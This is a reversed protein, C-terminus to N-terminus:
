PCRRVASPPAPAPARRAGALPRQESAAVDLAAQGRQLRGDIPFLVPPPQGAEDAPEDGGRRQQDIQADVAIRIADKTEGLFASAAQIGHEGGHLVVRGARVAAERDVPRRIPRIHDPEVGALRHEVPEARRQQRPVLILGPAAREEDVWVGARRVEEMERPHGYHSARPRDFRRAARNHGRGTLCVFFPADLDDLAAQDSQPLVAGADDFRTRQLM